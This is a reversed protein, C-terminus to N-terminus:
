YLRIGSGTDEVHTAKEQIIERLFVLDGACGSLHITAAVAAALPAGLTLGLAVLGATVLVTPALLVVVFRATPLVLGPAETFLIGAKAGFRIKTGRGGLLLFFAAHVLEHVLFAAATVASTALISVLSVAEIPVAALLMLSIVALGAVVIGFSLYVIRMLLEEDEFIDLEKAVQM